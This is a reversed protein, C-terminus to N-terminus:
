CEKNAKICYVGISNRLCEFRANALPKTLSDALQVKSSYHILNVERSLEAERVFHYKIKLHKTKGHFVPNKAIAVASQNDVKIEIAERQDGNLDSLLKRLWIAQNVATVAAIYKVEAWDSDSYGLLKLEEVKEFKVRLNLTGKVYRLVRKAAEFHAINNYHMFMSLLSVASMLNPRTATLYLLCGVLSRYGKEDVREHDIKSSLKEGQAVPTSAHKYNTVCFKSLIKLAFAHQNIFLGHKNQNVEMGLIYTMLSLDTMEFVDQMLDKSGTKATYHRKLSTFTINKVLYKSGMQSSLLSKRMLFGNLFTSKIDLQHLKWQKQAALAFLLRITDLRAVPAFTKLFDVGYQQNYGKVVLRVKHKNLSGDTNHKTKFVWKVRIVKKKVLKDVLEWIDNKNIIEM